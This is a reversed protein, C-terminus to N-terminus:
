VRSRRIVAGVDVVEVEEFLRSLYWLVLGFLVAAFVIMIWGAADHSFKRAAEGSTYQYLLGTAVIRSANAILAIPITSCLLLVREWWSRRMLIVYAFALATIGMFIRLGSCAQEVELRNEGLIITHGEALAPQGLAQLVWCSIKTAVGQLPLSLWREVRYPLPVMFFLFVISPLAWWFVKRGALLLVAGAVWPLISWGDIADLYYHASVARAAVSAAILGLGLAVDILYSNAATTRGLRKSGASNHPLGAVAAEAESRAGPYLDRRAWLFWVALLPVFFGHSYDPERNWAAVLATLTPWYAWVFAAALVGGVAIRLVSFDSVGARFAASGIEACSGGGADSSQGM